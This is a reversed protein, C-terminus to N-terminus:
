AAAGDLAKYNLKKPTFSSSKISDQLEKIIKKYHAVMKSGIDNKQRALQFEAIRYQCWFDDMSHDNIKEILKDFDSDDQLCNNLYDLSLRIMSTVADDTSEGYGDLVLELNTSFYGEDTKYVNFHLHPVQWPMQAPVAVVFKGIGVPDLNIKVIEAKQVSVIAGM